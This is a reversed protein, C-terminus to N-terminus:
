APMRQGIDRLVREVDLQRVRVVEYASGRPSPRYLVAGVGNCYSRLASLTARVTELDEDDEIRVAWFAFFAPDSREVWSPLSRMPMPAAHVLKLDLSTLAVERLRGHLDRRGARARNRNHPHPPVGLVKVAGAVVPRNGNPYCFDADLEGFLESRVRVRSSPKLGSKRHILAVVIDTFYRAKSQYWGSTRGGKSYERDFEEVATLFRPEVAPWGDFPGNRIDDILNEFPPYRVQVNPVRPSTGPLLADRM